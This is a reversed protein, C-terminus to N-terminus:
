KRLTYVNNPRNEYINRMAQIVVEASDLVHHESLFCATEIDKRQVAKLIQYHEQHSQPDWSASTTAAYMFRLRSVHLEEITRLLRPMGCPRSLAWHFARNCSEWTEITTAVKAQEIATAAETIDGDKMRPIALRLALTELAARMSTIEVISAEDLDAVRVGKRPESQVLGQFELRRFAERVPVHSISFEQAIADQRLWEGPRLEGKIIRDAIIKAIREQLTLDADADM